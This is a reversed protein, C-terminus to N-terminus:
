SLLRVVRDALLRGKPTLVLTQARELADPDVLGEATLNTLIEDLNNNGVELDLSERINQLDPLKLGSALRITLFLEELAQQPATLQESDAIPLRNESLIQSYQRPHNVNWFRNGQLHSHAGPGFGWWDGSRWYAQNHQCAYPGTAGAKAWNSVEYWNYGSKTLTDDALLYKDALDDDEPMPLSGQKVLRGLKTNPEITLAYASIHEAGTAIAAEISQQWETISEGPTGYILDLSVKMGASKAWSVAPTIMEPNHTRDLARLVKPVASQMGFSIRNFGGAALQGISTENVTDPNAEISIEANPALSWTQELKNLIKVLQPTPLITPTGGGFYVTSIERAPSVQQAALEIERCVLGAYGAQTAGGGLDAATYTNFDCYGCRRLCFPIHVYVSLPSQTV